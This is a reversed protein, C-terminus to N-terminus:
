LCTFHTLIIKYINNVKNKSRALEACKTISRMLCVLWLLISQDHVKRPNWKLSQVLLIFNEPLMQDSSLSFEVITDLIKRTHKVSEKNLLFSANSLFSLSWKVFFEFFPNEPELNKINQSACFKRMSEVSLTALTSVMGLCLVQITSSSLLKTENTSHEKAIWVGLASLAPLWSLPLSKSGVIFIGAKLSATVNEATSRETITACISDFYISSENVGSKGSTKSKNDDLFFCEIIKSMRISWSISSSVLSACLHISVNQQNEGSCDSVSLAMTSCMLSDLLQYPLTDVISTFELHSPTYVNGQKNWEEFISPFPSPHVCIHKPLYKFLLSEMMRSLPGLIKSVSQSSRTSAEVFSSLLHLIDYPRDLVADSSSVFQAINEIFM